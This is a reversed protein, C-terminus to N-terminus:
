EFLIRLKREILPSVRYQGQEFTGCSEYQVACELDDDSIALHAPSMTETISPSGVKTKTRCLDIATGHLELFYYWDGIPIWNEQCKREDMREFLDGPGDPPGTDIRLWHMKREINKTAM